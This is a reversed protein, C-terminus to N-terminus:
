SHSKLNPPIEILLSKDMEAEDVRKNYTELLELFRGSLADKSFASLEELNQSVFSEISEVSIRGPAVSAAIQRSAMLFSDPVILYAKYGQKLNQTCRGYVQTMPAVTVHFATDKVQFDGIRGLQADATSYSKNSIEIEPFRLQLKAGVLHQAVPGEKGDERALMLLDQIAQWTSKAPDHTLKLRQQGHFDRIREVLFSQFKKLMRGRSRTSWGSFGCSEIAALLSKIEGRLGRNTRGGESLFPRSEGFSSLIKKIAEGSVGSIQTGGPATHSSIDLQFDLKLRELVVLAGAITGKAPFGQYRKLGEYWGKFVKRVEDESKM